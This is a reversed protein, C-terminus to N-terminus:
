QPDTSSAGGKERPDSPRSHREADMEDLVDEMGLEVLLESSPGDEAYGSQQYYDDVAQDLESAAIGNLDASQKMLRPHLRDDRRTYGALSSLARLLASGRQGIRMMEDLDVDLGTCQSLLTRIRDFNYRNGTRILSTFRCLILANGFSTLDRVLVVLPVKGEFTLPDYPGDTVGHEPWPAETMAYEDHLGELHTGGRPSTALAVGYGKKGRPDHLAAEVGKMEVLFDWGLEDRLYPVGRALEGGLGTGDIMEDLLRPIAAGDGWKPGGPLLGRETAEMAAAILVGASITDIGYANCKLNAAAVSSLDGNLCLSGFAALTEYEPGGGTVERDGFAFRVSRRCRIPCGACTERQTVMENRYLAEGEIAEVRDFSGAQFNKTPLVGRANLGAVAATTGLRGFNVTAPDMLHKLFEARSSAFAEPQGIEKKQDGVIAIAKLRKAGMIAGFGPRGAAHTLDNLICSHPIGREGAPGISSVRCGPYRERLREETENTTLGWLDSAAVLKARGGAVVLVVPADACGRILIGDYGSRGLADGFFGGAYSDAIAGTKPSIAAVAHRGAGAVGTGQFPGTAFVLSAEEPTPTSARLVESLLLRLAIGRGGVYTEYMPDPIPQDAIRGATLDVSLYRGYTGLM